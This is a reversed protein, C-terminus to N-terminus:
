GPLGSSRYREMRRQLTENAVRDQPGIFQALAEYLRVLRLNTADLRLRTGDRTRLHLERGWNHNTELRASALEDLRIPTGYKFLTRSYLTAGDVWVRAQLLMACGFLALLTFPLGILLKLAVGGLVLCSMGVIGILLWIPVASIRGRGVVRAHPGPRRDDM